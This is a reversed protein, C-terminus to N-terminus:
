QQQDAQSRMPTVPATFNMNQLTNRFGLLFVVLGKWAQFVPITSEDATTNPVLSSGLLNQDM